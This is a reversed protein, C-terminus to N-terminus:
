KDLSPFVDGKNQEYYGEEGLNKMIGSQGPLSKTVDDNMSVGDSERRLVFIFM